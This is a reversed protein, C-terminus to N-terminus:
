RLWRRRVRSAASHAAQPGQRDRADDRELALRAAHERGLLEHRARAARGHAPELGLLLAPVRPGQPRRQFSKDALIPPNPMNTEEIGWYEGAGTRSSSGSRRRHHKKDIWYLRSAVDGYQTDPYSSSARAGDAGRAHVARPQQSRSCCARAGDDRRLPRDAARAGAGAAAAAPTVLENHFTEGLSSSSCRARTSRACSRTRRCRGSTPPCSSSRSRTRRRRRARRRAQRLLDAHPLLEADAREARRQRAAAGDRLRAARAPVLRERRLRRRRQREARPRDDELGAARRDEAEDEIGLAAANAAKSSRSTPIPSSTSRRSSTRRDLREDRQRRHRGRDQGPLLPRGPPALRSSCGASRGRKDSSRRRRGRRQAHAIPVLSPLELLSSTAARVAGQARARVGAPARDPPLRRRHPPLPRLRAGARRDPAPLRAPPQHERLERGRHRQQRPLLPPRRRALDRRDQRRDGQLRPLQGHDPLQDPPEDPAQGHRAHGASGCDAYAQTSRDTASRRRRGAEPLLDARRSRAPDLPALDDEDGPRGPDADGHRLALRGLVRRGGAPRLRDRARDGRPGPLTVNLQKEAVKVRRALASSRRSRSTTGSTRAARPPSGSASSADAAHRAPDPRLARPGHARRRAAQYRVVSSVSPPRSSRM